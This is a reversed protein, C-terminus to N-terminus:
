RALKYIEAIDEKGLVKFAGITRKGFFTCKVALEDIQMDTPEVGLEKLSTPMGIKRYFDEMALVAREADAKDDGTRGLGFVGEGFLAFRSYDVSMVYRAWSGWIACLGAGHAVDFMGSLEHELQHCAWDGRQANGLNMLGNHSLSSAWMLNARADYSEPDELAKIGNGAATRILAFSLEDTLALTEGPHFFREMTHMMIDAAGSATQYPPVTYTLEPNMVAFRCRVYDSSYGRKLNGKLDNTIVASDSMESGAAALTLVAGLPYAGAAKRKGDYFDWVDGGNYLGYAIDKASDIVSGGGVALLFDVGEAKALEIGKNVLSLRPNPKVGGLLVYAIGEKDLQATITDMLGGPKRTRESGYHILVKTAGQERLLAGTENEAGRGFVVKTPTYYTSTM